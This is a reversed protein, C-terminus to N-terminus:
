VRHRRVRLRGRSTMWAIFAKAGAKRAQQITGGSCLSEDDLRPAIVLVRDSVKYSPAPCRQSRLTNETLTYSVAFIRLANTVLAVLITLALFFWRKRFRRKYALSAM